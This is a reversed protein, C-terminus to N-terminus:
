PEEGTEPMRDKREENFYLKIARHEATEAFHTRIFALWQRHTATLPVAGARAAKVRYEALERSLLARALYFGPPDHLISAKDAWCLLSPEAGKARAHHRSHFECLDGYAPGLLARAIAAGVEPHREGEADDMARKGWYGWDHIVICVAERWTPWRGNLARWALAVTVPHWVFQHVGFLLSRTGMRM